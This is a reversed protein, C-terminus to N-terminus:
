PMPEVGEMTLGEKWRGLPQGGSAVQELVLPNAEYGEASLKRLRAVGDVAKDVREAVRQKLEGREPLTGPEVLFHMAAAGLVAGLALMLMARLLSKM